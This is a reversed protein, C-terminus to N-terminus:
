LSLRELRERCDRRQRLRDLADRVLWDGEPSSGKARGYLDRAEELRGRVEACVGLNYLLSKAGPQLLLAEQWLDCAQDFAHMGAFTLGLAAKERAQPSTVTGDVAWLEVTFQQAYPAVQRALAAMAHEGARDLEAQEAASRDGSFLASIVGQAIDHAVIRRTKLGTVDEDACNQTEAAGTIRDNHVVSGLRVDILSIDIELNARTGECRTVIKREKRCKKEVPDYQECVTSRTRDNAPTARAEVVKGTYLGQVGLSRGIRLYTDMHVPPELARRYEEQAAADLKTLPEVSYLKRGNFAAEALVTEVLKAAWAGSTGEFPMVAVTEYRLTVPREPPVFLTTEITVPPAKQAFCGPGSLALFLLFLLFASKRM